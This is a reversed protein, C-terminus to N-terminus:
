ARKVTNSIGILGSLYAGPAGPQAWLKTKGTRMPRIKLSLLNRRSCNWASHINLRVVRRPNPHVACRCPLCALPQPSRKDGPDIV